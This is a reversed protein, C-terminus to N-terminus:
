VHVWLYVSSFLKWLNGFSASKQSLIVQDRLVFQKQVESNVRGSLLPPSRSRGTWKSINCNRIDAPLSPFLGSDGTRCELTNTLHQRKGEGYTTSEAMMHTLYSHPNEIEKAHCFFASIGFFFLSIVVAVLWLLKRFM